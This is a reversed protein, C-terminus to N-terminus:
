QDKTTESIWQFFVLFHFTLGDLGPWNELHLLLMSSIDLTANTHSIQQPNWHHGRCEEM